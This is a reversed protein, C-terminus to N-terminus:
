GGGFAVVAFLLLGVGAARNVWQLVPPSLRGRLRSAASTLLLWWAASGLFVGVVFLLMTATAPSRGGEVLGVAAFVAAFSLITLPNALTLALTSLYAGALGRGSLPPAASAATSFLTRLGIYGLLLAGAPRLWAGQAILGRAALTLGLGAVLGYLADATAAGLGSALGYAQGGALTRRLCL